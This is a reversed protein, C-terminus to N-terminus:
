MYIGEQYVVQGMGRGGSFLIYCARSGETDAMKFTALHETHLFKMGGSSDLGGEGEWM